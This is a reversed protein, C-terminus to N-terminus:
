VARKQKGQTPRGTARALVFDVFRSKFAERALIQKAPPLKLITGILANAVYATMGDRKDILLDHLRGQEVAMTIARTFASEPVVRRQARPVMQMSATECKLGCVGCGLCAEVDVEPLWTVKKNKITRPKEGATIADVPCAKKCKKCGTCDTSDVQAQFNSSFTNDLFDFNKFSLLVECCCGCCNCIFTPRRQVNDSIHVLGAERSKGILELAEGQSIERAIGRRVLYDVVPGLTLCSEM